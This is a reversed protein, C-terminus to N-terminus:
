VMVINNNSVLQYANPNYLISFQQYIASLNTDATNKILSRRYQYLENWNFIINSWSSNPNNIATISTHEISSIEHHVSDTKSNKGTAIKKVNLRPYVIDKERIKKLRNNVQNALKGGHGKKVYFNIDESPFIDCITQALSRLEKRGPNMRESVIKNTIQNCIFTQDLPFLVRPMRSEYNQFVKRGEASERLISNVDLDLKSNVPIPSSASNINQQSVSRTKEAKWSSYRIWFRKIFGFKFSPCMKLVDTMELSDFCKQDILESKFIEAIENFGWGDVLNSVTEISESTFGSFIELFFFINKNAFNYNKILFKGSDSSAGEEEEVREIIEDENEEM